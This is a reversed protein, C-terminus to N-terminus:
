PREDRVCPYIGRLCQCVTPASYGVRAGIDRMSLGDARLRRMHEIVTTTIGARRRPTVGAPVPKTRLAARLASASGYCGRSRTWSEIVAWPLTRRHGALKHGTSDSTTRLTRLFWALEELPIFVWIAGTNPCRGDHVGLGNAREHRRLRRAQIAPSIGLHECLPTVAVWPRGIVDAVHVDLGDMPFRAIPAPINM